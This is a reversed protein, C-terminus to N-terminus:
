KGSLNNVCASRTPTPVDYINVCNSMRCYIFLCHKKEHPTNQQWFAFFLSVYAVSGLIFRMGGLVVIEEKIVIMIDGALHLLLTLLAITVEM